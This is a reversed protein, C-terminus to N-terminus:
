EEDSEDFEEWMEEALLDEDIAERLLKMTKTTLKVNKGENNTAKTITISELEFDTEEPYCNEPLGSTHAATYSLTAVATFEVEVEIADDGEGEDLEVTQTYDGIQKM